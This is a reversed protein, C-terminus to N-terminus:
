AAQAAPAPMALASTGAAERRRWPMAACGVLLLLTALTTTGYWLTLTALRTGLPGKNSLLALAVAAGLTLRALRGPSALAARALCFGPVVLIGFHAKSSMPSLLLALALVMGCELAQPPVEGPAARRVPRFPRGAAGMAGALLLLASGYTLGRMAQPGLLPLRSQVALEAAGWAWTTALWRQCAGALSQNYVIESGWTGVQHGPETLPRLFFTWYEALRPRGSPSPYLLEPLLNVGVAVVVLWVAASPRRRYLLYPLFLLPSCKCAAAVGLCTAGALFREHLLLLCGGVLVAGIVVDMQQHAFCNQAYGLGCAAGLVAALHERRPAGALAGGGALRWAGVVLFVLCALNLAVWAARGLNASLYTFPLAATAMFPPYLFVEAGPRYLSQGAAIREAGRVCDEEWESEPRLYSPVALAVLAVAWVVHYPHSRVWASLRASRSM